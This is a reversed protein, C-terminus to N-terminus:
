TLTFTLDIRVIVPVPEGRLTGPRFLWRKAASVAERDLGNASDLSRIVRVDGVRGNPLVVAELAVTGQIKARMADRTYSPKVERRLVPVEVGPTCLQVAGPAFPAAVWPADGQASLSAPDTIMVVNDGDRQEVRGVGCVEAGLYRYEFREGFAPRQVAPIGFGVAGAGEAKELKLLVTHTKEHCDYDVIRGCVKVGQFAVAQGDAARGARPLGPAWAAVVLALVCVMPFNGLM